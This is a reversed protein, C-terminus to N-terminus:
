RKLIHFFQPNLTFSVFYRIELSLFDLFTLKTNKCAAFFPPPSDPDSEAVLCRPRHDLDSSCSTQLTPPIPMSIIMIM